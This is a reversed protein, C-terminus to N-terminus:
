YNNINLGTEDGPGSGDKPKQVINGKDDKFLDYKSSSGGKLEHIDVGGKQLMQIEGDSLKRMQKSADIVNDAGKVVKTLGAPLGPIFMAVTDAAADGWNCNAVDYAVNAVDWLTDLIEGSPDGHNIPNNVSYAYPNQTQPITLYGKVPDVSIFRGTTTDYQRARLYYLGSENDLQQTQYLMGDSGQGARLGGYPQYAYYSLKNGTEDTIFRVNGEGDELIYDRSSATSQGQSILGAGYVYSKQITNSNNTEALVKSLKGSIDNVFRTTTSGVTKALRNNLGDYLYATTDGTAPDHEVLRNEVNFDFAADRTSNGITIQNGNNDYTFTETGAQSLKSDDDYSYNTTSTTGSLSATQSTRNDISNYAFDYQKEDHYKAQTLRSLPDYTFTTIYQPPPTQAHATPVLLSSLMPLVDKFFAFRSQQQLYAVVNLNFPGFVNNGENSESITNERDVIVWINHSGTTGFEGDDETIIRTAGAALASSNTETEDYSAPSPASARDFYFGLKFSTSGTSVTGQNKITAKIDFEEDEEPSSPVLTVGTVILDKGSGPIPTPTPTPISTPTPTPTPTPTAAPNVTLDHPGFANNNENAEAVASDRDVFAWITHAGSTSFASASTVNITTEQGANLNMSTNISFNYTSTITPLSTRDYWYPIKVFISGTGVTGQNKVKISLTYPSGANPSVPNTSIGTIVLDKGPTLTPTPGQTPTPTPTPPVPTPTPTATPQPTSVVEVQLPGHLNNDENQETLEQQKDALIWVNHSGTTNFSMSRTLLVEEGPALDINTGYTSNPFTTYDPPTAPDKYYGFTPIIMNTGLTGQNKVKITINFNTNVTPSAPTTYADTIVLDPGPPPTPTPFFTGEETVKTINGVTDREYAFKALTTSNKVHTLSALRNADDYTYSSVIGNPLTKTALLGNNFYSYNTSDTNWDVVGSLRNANDYSYNVEQNGPYTIKTLNGTNDYTYATQQSYPNTVTLLKDHTDYAYTTTGQPDVMQTLNGRNDYTYNVTDTNPYTTKKLRNFADYEYLTQDNNADTRKTINGNPDYEWASVKNLPTTTETKRNLNDYEHSTVKLLANQQSTLNQYADYGYTTTNNLADKITALSGSNNYTYDTVSNNPLTTKTMRNEKDYINTTTGAANLITLLNGNPDYTYEETKNLPDIKKKLRSVTDYEFTSINNNADTETLPNGFNDRTWSTM